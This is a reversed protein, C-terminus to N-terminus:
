QKQLTGLYVLVQANKPAKGGGLPSQQVVKGAQSQSTVPFKVYILRLDAANMTSVAEDLTKGIANPVTEDTTANPGKSLNIQVHSHFPVTTGAPKAQQIVTGLTDTGPVFVLSALVGANSMATVAAQETQGTVDPMKATTPQPPAATTTPTTTTEATTTEQTTTAATTTPSTTSGTTTSTTASAVSITVTSGKAVSAGADPKQAVVTGARQDSSVPKKSTHLGLADLTAQAEPFPKGTLDPVAVQGATTATQVTTVTTTDKKDDRHTLYWAIAIGAAVLALAGLGLLMGAGIRRDPPPGAPDPAPAGVVTESSSIVTPDDAAPWGDDPPLPPEPPQTMARM